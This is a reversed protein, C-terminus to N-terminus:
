ECATIVSLCVHWFVSLKRATRTEKESQASSQTGTTPARAQTRRQGSWWLISMWAVWHAWVSNPSQLEQRQRMRIKLCTIWQHIHAQLRHTRNRHPCQGGIRQKRYQARGSPEWRQIQFWVAQWKLRNTSVPAQYIKRSHGISDLTTMVESAMDTDAPCWAQRKGSNGSSRVTRTAIPHPVRHRCTNRNSSSRANWRWAPSESRSDRLGSMTLSQRSATLLLTILLALQETNRPHRRM